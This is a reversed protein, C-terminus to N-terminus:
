VSEGASLTLAVGKLAASLRLLGAADWRDTAEIKVHVSRPSATTITAEALNGAELKMSLAQM